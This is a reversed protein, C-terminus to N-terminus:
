IMIWKEDLIIHKICERKYTYTIHILGKSDQIIVPYSFEMNKENELIKNFEWTNGEDESLTINLISRSTESDNYLLIVNGDSLKVADIGSGPNRLITEKTKSWTYGGDKSESILITKLNHPRLFALINNNDKQILTPQINGFIPFFRNILKLFHEYLGSPIHKTLIPHSLEWSEGDDKSILIYSKFYYDDYLSFLVTNDKLYLAKNKFNWGIKDPFLLRNESWTNGFDDSYMVRNDTLAWNWLKPFRRWEKHITNNFLYIRNKKNIFLIANGNSKGQTKLIVQPEEWSNTRQDFTSVYIKTDLNAEATGAYFSVMLKGDPLQILSSCHASREKNPILYAKYM